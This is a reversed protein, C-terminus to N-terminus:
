LGLKLSFGITRPTPYSGTEIGQQNGSSLIAEPDFHKTNKHIIWLNRGVVSLTVNTFPTKGIISRPLSYGLSLERLKVYSADFVWYATPVYGYYFAGFYDQTTVYSENKTGDEYVTNPYRYGGGASVDDRIPNGKDNNAATEEYVGTAYGYKTNISYIDGGKQIDLLFSLSLGKYSLNNSVGMNWDPNINGIIVDEQESELLYGDEDVVRAAGTEDMFTSGDEYVYDTGKITGYPEGVTANVSVDWASYLLYNEVGEALELVENRNAFWNINFDWKFDGASVPTGLLAVELGKNQIEGGNVYRRTNGSASSVLVPMIQDFTNTKYLAVDFGLRRNIFYVELGAELSKTREPKLDPNQLTSNMSFLAADGWNPNQTYTSILSYAPADNGVQAYNLRVKAFPLWTLTNLGPIQTLILSTSVSPYFYANNEEPLTSAIDYRGTGDIYIMDRFGLSLSGYYSNIGTLVLSETVDVPSVSNATNYLEPVFMGGVTHNYISQIKNRRINTGLLGNLNFDGFSKDIKLMFDTNSESFTRLFNGYWPTVTTESGIAIRENQNETYYDIATRGSLTLWDTLHYDITAYGFVRDREDDEYNEHRVWYPNAFYFPRLDDYYGYNWNRHRGDPTKYERLRAFDVNTEIWQGFSQMVNRGDYGTGYRGLTKQNLYTVNGGVELRKTFDYNGSLNFTNKKISSVPLIGKEDMNTYSFRFAGKDTGGDFAINNIWKVGTEFFYDIGHAGAVWPRKEAFNPYTPDLADWHIVMLNPDFRAGWSADESTPPILDMTGDGDLDTYFFYGTPDEYYAGYGAGYLRQHQPLTSKDIKSIMVSSNLSVGIGQRQKGKKTTILVVGNAARSGYLASAAAGRLISISEIDDPNIDMAANGFDYGGWGDDQYTATSNAIIRDNNTNNNDVPVGDIVFLAQNNRTLSTTGRILINASGGMTNPQKIHVGAVKGSLSSIFNTERVESVEDGGIEQVSYGLSKKERSIGLATVVVEDIGVVDPDMIIDIVNRGEIRIDQTKMGVFSVVLETADAPIRLVYTGEASSVTGVTTGKVIISAGPVPSGDESSTVTGTIEVAQAQLLQVAAFLLLTLFLVLRKM